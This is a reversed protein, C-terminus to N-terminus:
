ADRDGAVVSRGPAADLLGIGAAFVVCVIDVVAVAVSLHKVGVAHFHIFVSDVLCNAPASDITSAAYHRIDEHGDVGCACGIEVEGAVLFGRRHAKCGGIEVAVLRFKLLYVGERSELAVQVGGAQLLAEKGKCGFLVAELRIGRCFPRALLTIHHGGYTCQYAAVGLEPVLSEVM